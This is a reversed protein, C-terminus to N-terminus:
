RLAAEEAEFERLAKAADDFRGDIECTKLDDILADRLAEPMEGADRTRALRQFQRSWGFWYRGKGPRSRMRVMKLSVWNGASADRTYIRWDALPNDSEGPKSEVRLLGNADRPAIKAGYKGDAYVGGKRSEM